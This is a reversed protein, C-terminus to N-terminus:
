GTLIDVERYTGKVSLFTWSNNFCDIVLERNLEDSNASYVQLLFSNIAKRISEHSILVIKEHTEKHDEAFILIGIM